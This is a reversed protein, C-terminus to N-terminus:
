RMKKACALLNSSKSMIIQDVTRFLIDLFAVRYFFLTFYEVLSKPPCIFYGYKSFSFHLLHM